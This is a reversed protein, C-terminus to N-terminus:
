EYRLSEIPDKSAAQQAPYLGFIVGVSVSIGFSILVAAASVVTEWRALMNIAVAMGAGLLIGIVGGGGSILLTENLFQVLIDRESAGIARRIGIERTRETVSALMINMIGIGGVLLSLAAISGMVINFIRQTRQSQALLENPVIVEYDKVGRHAPELIRAIVWSSPVVEHAEHVQVAIEEIRDPGKPNSFRKLSATVPIYVDRNMNRLEIVGGTSVNKRQMVGVVTFPEEGLRVEQFLAEETGFLERKIEEGLVCVPRAHALDLCTIFRGSQLRSNTLDDYEDGVGIIATGQFRSSGRFVEVDVFKLPSLTRVTPLTARIQEADRLTLGPSNRYEAENAADGSLQVDHVRINNTGLLRIQEIAQRRAGEGISMMAIVAAVGFIVGLMTLFTRLKHLVLNKVGARVMERIDV